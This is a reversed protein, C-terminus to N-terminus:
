RRFGSLVAGLGAGTLAGGAAAVISADEDALSLAFLLGGIVYVGILDNERDEGRRRSRIDDVLWLSLLGLAAGNAGLADFGALASLAAGAAGAALFAFVLVAAGFRREVHMGFIATAVLTVFQYGLNDHSFPTTVVRWWEGGPPAGDAVFLMAGMDLLTVEGTSEVITALLSLAILAFTAYPRTEPAIGPIEDRRLRPLSPARRKRVKPEAPAGRDIKPARKRVRQGCYPCETVYPSVESGCNKCVVFLDPQSV